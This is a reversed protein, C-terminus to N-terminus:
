QRNNTPLLVICVDTRLEMSNKKTHPNYAHVYEGFGYQLDIKYDLKRKVLIEGPSTHDMRFVMNQSISYEVSLYRFLDVVICTTYIIIHVINSPM